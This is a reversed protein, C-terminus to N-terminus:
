AAACEGRHTCALATQDVEKVGDLVLGRRHIHQAVHKIEPKFVAVHHGLAVGAEEALHALEGVATHLYVEEDAVVVDPALVIQGLLAAHDHVVFRERDIYAALYEIKGMAVTQPVGVALEAEQAAHKVVGQQLAHKGADMGAPTDVEAEFPGLVATELVLALTRWAVLAFLVLREDEVGLLVQSLVGIDVIEEVAVAMDLEVQHQRAIGAQENQAFPHVEAGVGHEVPLRQAHLVEDLPLSGGSLNDIHLLPLYLSYSDGRSSQNRVQRPVSFASTCVEM